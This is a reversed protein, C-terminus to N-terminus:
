TDPLSKYIGLIPWCIEQLLIPLDITPIYLDSVFVHIYFNPRHSRFEKKPFIQTWNEPSTRQLESVTNLGSEGISIKTHFREWLHAGSQGNAPINHVSVPIAM